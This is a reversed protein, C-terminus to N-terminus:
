IKRCLHRSSMQGSAETTVSIKAHTSNGSECAKPGNPGIGRDCCRNYLTQGKEMTASKPSERYHTKTGEGDHCILLNQAKVTTPTQGQEMTASRPSRVYHAKM